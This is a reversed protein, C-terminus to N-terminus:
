VANMFRMYNLKLREVQENYLAGTNSELGPDTSNVFSFFYINSSSFKCLWDSWICLSCARISGFRDFLCSCIIKNTELFVWLFKDKILLALIM